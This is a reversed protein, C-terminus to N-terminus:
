NIVFSAHQRNRPSRIALTSMLTMAGLIIFALSLILLPPRGLSAIIFSVLSSGSMQICGILASSSGGLHRLEKMSDAIANPIIIRAGLIYISSTLLISFMNMLQLAYMVLMALGGLILLLTGVMMLRQTGVKRVYHNVIYGGILYNAAILLSTWGFQSPMMGLYDIFIVPSIQFYAIVGSFSLTYCLTGAIFSPTTLVVRYNNLIEYLAFKKHISEVSQQNTEPLFKLILLTVFAVYLTCLTFNARWGYLEEAYGGILPAVCLTIVLTTTTYSWARSFEVGQFCDSAIARNLAGCAGAGIGAILRAAMLAAPTVAFVCALNGAIFIGLGALMVNRRGYHDSLPGYILQSLSFGLLYLTLTYQAGASSIGFYEGIAPISPLYSDIVFRGLSSILCILIIIRTYGHM